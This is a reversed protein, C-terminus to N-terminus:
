FNGTQGVFLWGSGSITTSRKFHYVAVKGAVTATPLPIDGAKYAANWSLTRSTGDDKVEINLWNNHAATGSPEAFTANTALATITLYNERADGTPTPTASSTISSEAYQVLTGTVTPVTLTGTNTITSIVPATLTKNTLTETGTLSALTSIKDYLANKSAGDTTNGDWGAGYAVDSITAGGGTPLKMKKIQNTGGSPNYNTVVLVTDSSTEIPLKMILSDSPKIRVSASDLSLQSSKTSGSVNMVASNGGADINTTISGRAWYLGATYTRAYYGYTLSDTVGDTKTLSHLLKTSIGTTSPDWTFQLRSKRTTFFADQELAMIRLAKVTDIYLQKHNWNQTYDGDAKQAALAINGPTIYKVTSDTIEKTVGPGTVAITKLYMETSDVGVLLTDGTGNANYFNISDNELASIKDYVANKSPAITTVGDWGSGYAIDSVSGSGTGFGQGKVWETTAVRKSSDDNGMTTATLTDQFTGKNFNTLTALINLSPLTTTIYATNPNLIYSSGLVGMELQSGLDNIAYYKSTGGTATSKVQMQASNGYVQLLSQANDFILNGSGAFSGSSNYQVNTNTGGPNKILSRLLLSTDRLKSQSAVNTTTDVGYTINSLTPTAILTADHAIRKLASGNWLTDGTATANTITGGPWRDFRIVNGAVDFAVPKYIATDAGAGPAILRLSDLITKGSRIIVSDALLITENETLTSGNNLVKQLSESQGTFVLTRFVGNKRYRLTTDNLKALSDIGYQGGGGGALATDLFDIIGDILYHLRLNTFATAANNTIWKTNYTRLSDTNPFAWYRYYKFMKFETSPKPFAKLYDWQGQATSFALIITLIVILKKM